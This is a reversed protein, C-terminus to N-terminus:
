NWKLRFKPFYHKTTEIGLDTLCENAIPERDKYDPFKGQYDVLQKRHLYDLQTTLLDSASISHLFAMLCTKGHQNLTLWKKPTKEM